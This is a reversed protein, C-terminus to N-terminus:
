SLFLPCVIEIHSQGCGNLHHERSRIMHPPRKLTTQSPTNKLSNCMLLHKPTQNEQGVVYPLSFKRTALIPIKATSTPLGMHSM